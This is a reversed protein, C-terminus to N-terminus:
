AWREEKFATSAHRIVAVEDLRNQELRNGELRHEQYRRFKLKELVKVARAARALAQQRKKLEEELFVLKAQDKAIQERLRTQYDTFARKIALDVAGPAPLRAQIERELLESRSRALHDQHTEVRFKQDAYEQQCRKELRRRIRLLTQLTFRFKRM